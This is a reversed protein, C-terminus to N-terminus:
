TCYGFTGGKCNHDLNLSTYSDGDEGDHGAPHALSAIVRDVPVVSPNALAVGGLSLAGAAVGVVLGRFAKM